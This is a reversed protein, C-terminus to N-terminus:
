ILRKIHVKSRGEAAIEAEMYARASLFINFIM